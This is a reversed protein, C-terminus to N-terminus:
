RIYAPWTSDAAPFSGSLTACQSSPYGGPVYKARLHTADTLHFLVYDYGGNHPLDYCVTTGVGVRSPDPNVTAAPATDMLVKFPQAIQNQGTIPPSWQSPDLLALSSDAASWSGAANGWGIQVTTGPNLNDPLISLAAVDIDFAPWPTGDIAPNFWAGRLYGPTDWGVAGCGKPSSLLLNFWISQLGGATSLYDIFCGANLSQTGLFDYVNPDVALNPLQSMYDSFKPYRTYSTNAFAGSVFRKDVIGVDWNAGYNRTIGLQEGAAVDLMAPGGPQGLLLIWPGTGLGSMDQWQAGTATLYDQIRASLGHIHDFRSTVSCTHELSVLYDYDPRGIKQQRYISFIRGIAMAYVPYSDTGPLHGTAPYLIYMHDVSLAHHGGPNLNGLPVVGAVNAIETPPSSLLGASVPIDPTCPPPTYGNGVFVRRGGETGLWYLEEATYRAATTDLLVVRAGGGAPVGSVVLHWEVRPQTPLQPSVEADTYSVIRRVGDIRADLYNYSQYIAALQAQWDAKTKGDNVYSSAFADSAAFSKAEILDAFTGLATLVNGIDPPATLGEKGGWFTGSSLGSCYTTSYTGNLLLSLPDWTGSLASASSCSGGSATAIMSSTGSANWATIDGGCAVFSCDDLSVFGGSVFAGYLLVRGARIRSRTAADYLLWHEVTFPDSTRQFTIAVPGSGADVTGTLRNGSLTGNFVTTQTWKPDTSTIQITVATGTRSGGTIRSAPDGPLYGILRGGAREHLVLLKTLAVSSTWVGDLTAATAPAAQLAISLGSVYLSLLALRRM